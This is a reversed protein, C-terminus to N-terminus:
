RAISYLFSIVGTFVFFQADSSFDGLFNIFQGTPSFDTIGCVNNAQLDIPETAKVQFPYSVKTTFIKIIQSQDNNVSEPECNINIAIETSYNALTSFAAVALVLQLCRIFGRPEKVVNFSAQPM